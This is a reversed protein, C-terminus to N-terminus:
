PALATDPTTLMVVRATGSFVEPHARTAAPSGPINL